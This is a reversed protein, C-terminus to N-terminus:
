ESIEIIKNIIHKAARDEVSGTPNVGELKAFLNINKLKYYGIKIMPTNEVM